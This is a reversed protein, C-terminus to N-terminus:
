IFGFSDVMMQITPLYSDYVAPEADYEIYYAKGRIITGIELVKLPIDDDKNKNEWTETYTYVLKYAPNGALISNTNSEIPEFDKM